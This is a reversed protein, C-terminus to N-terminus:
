GLVSQGSFQGFSSEVLGAVSKWNCCPSTSTRPIAAPFGRIGILQHLQGTGGILKTRPHIRHSRELPHIIKAFRKGTEQDFGDEVGIGPERPRRPVQQRIKIVLIPVPGDDAGKYARTFPYGPM